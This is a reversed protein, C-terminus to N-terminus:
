THFKKHTRKSSAPVRYYKSDRHLLIFQPFQDPSPLESGLASGKPLHEQAAVFEFVAEVDGLLEHEGLAVVLALLVDLVFELHELHELMGVDDLELVGEGSGFAEEDDHHKAFAPIQVIPDPRDLLLALHEWLALHQVPESLHYDM